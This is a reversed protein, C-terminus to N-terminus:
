VGTIGRNEPRGPGRNRWTGAQIRSLVPHGPAKIVFYHPIPNLGTRQIRFDPGIAIREKKPWPINGDTGNSRSNVRPHEMIVSVSVAAPDVKGEFLLEARVTALEDFLFPKLVIDGVNVTTEGIGGHKILVPHYGWMRFEVPKEIDGVDGAFWGSPHIAMQADCLQPNDSESAVLRGFIVGWKEPWAMKGYSTAREQQKTLFTAEETKGQTKLQDITQQLTLKETSAVEKSAADAPAAPKTEPPQGFSPISIVLAIFFACAAVLRRLSGGVARWAAFNIFPRTRHEVHDSRGKCLRDVDAILTQGSSM